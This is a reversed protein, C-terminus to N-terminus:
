AHINHPEVGIMVRNLFRYYNIDFARIHCVDGIYQKEVYPPIEPELRYTKLGDCAKLLEAAAKEPNMEDDFFSLNRIDVSRRRERSGSSPTIGRRPMGSPHTAIFNV